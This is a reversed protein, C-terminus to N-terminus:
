RAGIPILAFLRMRAQAAYHAASIQYRRAIELEGAELFTAARRASYEADGQFNICATATVRIALQDSM